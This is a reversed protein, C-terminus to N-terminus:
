PEADNKRFLHAIRADHHELTAAVMEPTLGPALRALAPGDAAESLLWDRFDGVTLASIPAFAVPDHRDIILRTVEDDEYPVVAESLFTKLPLDALAMKAAVNEEASAAALGALMDGSRPPTAKTMLDKLDAFAFRRSGAQHVYPM